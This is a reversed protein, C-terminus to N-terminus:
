AVLALIAPDREVTEVPAVVGLCKGGVGSDIDYDLQDAPRLPDRPRQGLGGEGVALVQHGGVLGQEGVM